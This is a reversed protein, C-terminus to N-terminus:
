GDQGPATRTSAFPSPRQPDCSQRSVYMPHHGVVVKWDHTSERLTRDLWAVQEQRDAESVSRVGDPGEYVGDTAQGNYYMPLFPSSDLHVFLVSGQEHSYYRRATNCSVGRAELEACNDIARGLKWQKRLTPDSASGTLDVQADVLGQYDHNGLTGWWPKDLSPDTGLAM